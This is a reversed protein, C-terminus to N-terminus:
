SKFKALDQELLTWFETHFNGVAWYNGERDKGLVNLVNRTMLSQKLINPHHYAIKGSEAHRKDEPVGARRVAPSFDIIDFFRAKTWNTTVGLCTNGEGFLPTGHKRGLRFLADCQAPTTQALLAERVKLARPGLALSKMEEGTYLTYAASVTNQMYVSNPNFVGPLRSQVDVANLISVPCFGYTQSVMHYIWACFIDGVSVFPPETGVYASKLDQVAQQHLHSVFSAPLFILRGELYPRRFIDWLMNLGFRAMSLGQLRQKSTELVFPESDTVQIDGVTSMVDEEAGDLPPIEDERGALMLAWSQMLAKRGMASTMTHPWSLTVLTEDTFSTILLSLQPEELYCLDEPTLIPNKPAEFMMLEKSLAQLFPRDSPKPLQAAVPHERLSVDFTQHSFRFAPREATFKEPVHLELKGKSNIRLRGGVKRWGDRELLRALADRLMDVDLVDEFRMLWTLNM